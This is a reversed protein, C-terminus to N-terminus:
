LAKIEIKFEANIGHGLKATVNFIGLEKANLEQICKKDVELHFQEKLANSIEDKTVGGFLHGNAGIQKKVIVTKDSLSEKLKNMLELEYRNQEEKKKLDSAHKRLVETSALKAFGKGILFNQGYGDKVEKVEGAKGLGKVDKILLVKM